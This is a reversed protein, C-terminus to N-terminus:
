ATRGRPAPKAGRGDGARAEAVDWGRSVQAKEPASMRSYSKPGRPGDPLGSGPGIRGDGQGALSVM